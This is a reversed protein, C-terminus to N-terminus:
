DNGATRDGGGLQGRNACVSQQMGSTTGDRNGRRFATDSARQRRSTGRQGTPDALCLTLLATREHIKVADGVVALAADPDDPSEDRVPQRDDRVVATSVAVRGAVGAGVAIELLVIQVPNEVSDRAGDDEDAVREARRNRQLFGSV